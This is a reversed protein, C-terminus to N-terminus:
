RAAGGKVAQRKMIRVIYKDLSRVNVVPGGHVQVFGRKGFIKGYDRQIIRPNGSPGEYEVSIIYDKASQAIRKFVEASEIPLHELVAMTFIVNYLRPKAFFDEASREVIKTLHPFLRKAKKIASSNIDFGSLNKYGAEHLENLNRGVNCGVELISATKPIRMKDFLEVLFRSKKRGRIYSVIGNEGFTGRSKWYKHLEERTM